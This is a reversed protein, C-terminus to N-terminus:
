EQCDYGIQTSDYSLNLGGWKDIPVPKYGGTLTSQAHAQAALLLSLAITSFM